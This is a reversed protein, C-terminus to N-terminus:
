QRHNIKSTKIIGILSQKDKENNYNISLTLSTKGDILRDYMIQRMIVIKRDPSYLISEFTTFELGDIFEKGSNYDFKIGQSKYTEILLQILSAQNESYPGDVISDYAQLTSTFSNFQDKKLWLPNKNKGEIKENIVGEMATKGRGEIVAIEDDSLVKWDIPYYFTWGIENCKYERKVEKQTSTQSNCSIFGTLIWVFILKKKMIVEILIKKHESVNAQIIM